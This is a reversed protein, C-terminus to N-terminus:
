AARHLRRRYLACKLHVVLDRFQFVRQGKTIPLGCALCRSTAQAVTPGSPPTMPRRHARHAPPLALRRARGRRGRALEAQGDRYTVFLIEDAPFRRLGDDAAQLPDEPGVAGQAELGAVRLTALVESLGRTADDYGNQDSALRGLRSEHVPTTVFVSVLRGRAHSRLAEVLEPGAGPTEAVVLIRHRQDAIPGVHPADAAPPHARRMFWVTLAAIATLAFGITVVAAEWLGLWLGGLVILVMASIVVAIPVASLESWAERM